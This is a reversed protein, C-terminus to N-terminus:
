DTFDGLRLLKINRSGQDTIIQLLCVGMNGDELLHIQAFQTNQTWQIPIEQGSIAYMKIILIKEGNLDINIRDKFPNPSIHFAASEILSVSTYSTDCTNYNPNQYIQENNLHLCLLENDRMEHDSMKAFSYFPHEICGIGNVWTLKGSYLGDNGAYDLTIQKRSVGLYEIISIDRVVFQATDREMNADEWGLWVKDGINLTYDYILYEKKKCDEDYRYWAKQYDSRVYVRRTSFLKIM